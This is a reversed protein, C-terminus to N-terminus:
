AQKRGRGSISRGNVTLGLHRGELSLPRAPHRASQSLSLRRYDPIPLMAPGQELIKKKEIM